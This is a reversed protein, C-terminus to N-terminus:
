IGLEHGRLRPLATRRDALPHAVRASPGRMAELAARIAEIRLDRGSFEATSPAGIGTTDLEQAVEVASGDVQPSWVPDQAHGPGHRVEGAPRSRAPVRCRSPRCGARRWRRTPRIFSRAAYMASACQTSGPSSAAPRSSAERPGASSTPLMRVPRVPSPCPSPSAARRAALLCSSASSRAARHSARMTVRTSRSHGDCSSARPARDGSARHTLPAASRRRRASRDTEMTPARADVDYPSSTARLQAASSADSAQVTRDPAANPM